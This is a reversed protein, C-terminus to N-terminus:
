AMKTGLTSWSSWRSCWSVTPFHIAVLYHVRLLYTGVTMESMAGYLIISYIALALMLVEVILIGSIGSLLGHRQTIYGAVVGGTLPPVWQHVVHYVFYLFGDPFITINVYLSSTFGMICFLLSTVGLGIMIGIISRLM